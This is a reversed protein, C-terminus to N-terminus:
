NEALANQAVNMLSRVEKIVPTILTCMVMSVDAQLERMVSSSVSEVRVDKHVTETSDLSMGALTMVGYSM